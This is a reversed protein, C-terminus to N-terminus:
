QDLLALAAQAQHRAIEARLLDSRWTSGTGSQLQAAISLAEAFMGIEAQASAVSYLAEDHDGDDTITAALEIAANLTDQAAETESANFEHVAIQSLAYVRQLTIEISAVLAWAEEFRGATALEIAIAELTQDLQEQDEILDATARAATFLGARAEDIAVFRLDRDHNSRGTELAHSRADDFVAAADDLMGAAALDGAVGRLFRGRSDIDETAAALALAADFAAEADATQGADAFAVAISRLAAIRSEGHDIRDILDTADALLGAAAYGEALSALARSQEELSRIMGITGIAARFDRTASQGRAIAVLVRDRDSRDDILQAAAVADSYLGVAQEHLGAEAQADAIAELAIARREAEEIANAAAVTSALTQESRMLLGAGAEAAALYGLARSTEVPDDIGDVRDRARAFLGADTEVLAISTLAVLRYFPGDIGDATEQAASLLRCVDPNDVCWAEEEALLAAHAADAEVQVIAREADAVLEALAVASFTGIQQGTRLQVALNSAPFEAVIRDLRAEAQRLLDLAATPDAEAAAADILDLAQILLMNAAQNPDDPLAQAVQVVTEASVPLVAGISDQVAVPTPQASVVPAAGTPGALGILATIAVGGILVGKGKTGRRSQM